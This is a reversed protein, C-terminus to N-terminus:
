NFPKEYLGGKQLTIINQKCYKCNVLGLVIM